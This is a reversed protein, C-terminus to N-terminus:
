TQPTNQAPPEPIASEPQTPVSQAAPEPQGAEVVPGPATVAGPGTAAGPAGGGELQKAARVARTNWYVVLIMLLGVRGGLLFALVSVVIIGITLNNLTKRFGAFDRAGAQQQAKKGAILMWVGLGAVLILNLAAAGINKGVALLVALLLALIIVVWGISRTTKGANSVQKELKATDM